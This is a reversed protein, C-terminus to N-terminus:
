FQIRYLIDPMFGVQNVIGVRQTTRSFRQTFVNKNSTINQLDLYFTHAIRRKRSNIRLGLRPDLRFYSSYRESNYRTEDLVERNEAISQQLDVPTYYRGGASTMKIDTTFAVRGGSGIKWERGALVNFVTGNNFTSNREIGDSGKYRADFVSATGLLYYGKSFFKELTLEIGRNNGTGDNVLDTKDPFSFDSGSNLVSFGSATREVPVNFLDQYYAEVKVRWDPAFSWDYGIIYHHAKTLGLERNSQNYSGDPRLEQYFYVPMPQQQGHFGYSLTLSQQPTFAYRLSARPEINYTSNLDYYLAHLGANLSLKETFRYKGQLYPQLLLSSGNFDRLTEWDPRNERTQMNSEYGIVEALVGARVTLRSSLKSNFYSSFRLGTNTTSQQLLLRRGAAVTDTYRYSEGENYTYSYSLVSRVYSNKGIDLQHKLGIIGLRANFIIDEDTNSAYQDDADLESGILDVDSLGGLGFISFKGLKSPAFNLNFVLDQYGPVAQTGANIGLAQALQVFSYRYGVLFSSGNKKGSLPGELMAELGSFLNLQLTKEFRDANGSRLNIDFVAGTANGFEAPFGGTYFDSNKLANTNLASIPSGTNGLTAFHNPSPIPIGEMRWLVATPSNGRVVIENRSDNTTSVGAFNSAMRAPDNRGGAYRTVEEMSFSRASITAFENAAMGKRTKSGTVTVDKLNTISEELAVDVVVEKGATVLVEPIVATKYGSFSFAIQQRGVPVGPLHYRGNSDTTTGLTTGVVSVSAYSLPRESTKDLVTGKVTQTNVQAQGNIALCLLLIQVPFLARSRM